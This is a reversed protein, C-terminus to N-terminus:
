QAEVRDQRKSLWYDLSVGFYDSLKMITQLDPMVKNRRYYLISLSNIGTERSVDRWHIDRGERASKERRLQDMRSFDFPNERKM